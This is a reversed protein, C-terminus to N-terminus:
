TISGFEMVLPGSRWLSSLAVTKGTAADVLEGAPAREGARLADPFAEFDVMDMDIPFNAYNYVRGDEAM